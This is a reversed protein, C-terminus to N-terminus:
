EAMRSAFDGTQNLDYWGIDQYLASKLFLSRIRYIIESGFDIMAGTLDGFLLMNAPTALGMGMGALTGIFLLIRENTNSFRF